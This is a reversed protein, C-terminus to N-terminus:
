GSSATEFRDRVSALLSTNLLFARALEMSEAAQSLEQLRKVRIAPDQTELRKKNETTQRQVYAINLERRRDSYRDLLEDPGGERLERLTSVLDTVDHIGSNLGLGGIPNNVHAADGVLLARGARLTRAVRQHVRYLNRHELLDFAADNGTICALSRRAAVDSVAEQDSRDHPVPFVARWRGKGDDGAVKFLNTWEEPDALYNRYSYPRESEFEFSTTWVIFREPWTFGEFEIDQSKRVFSRGGDAGVVLDCDVQVTEGQHVAEIRVGDSHQEIRNATTSFLIQANDFCRLETLAIDVLKHQELQVVFPYRTDGALVHHDFRAVRSLTVRDWFDFYRAVLGRRVVEDIMGLSALMELTSPHLTAARPATNTTTEAEILTVQFEARALALALVAGVPGAGVVVIRNM